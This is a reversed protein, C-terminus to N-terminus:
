AGTVICRRLQSTYIAAPRWHSAIFKAATAAQKEGNPTLPIDTRGRFREPSIGEVEGHRVLLLDASAEAM